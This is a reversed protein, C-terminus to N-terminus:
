GGNCPLTGLVDTKSGCLQACEMCNIITQTDNGPKGNATYLVCGPCMGTLLKTRSSCNATPVLDIGCAAQGGTITAAERDSIIQITDSSRAPLVTICLGLTATGILALLYHKM